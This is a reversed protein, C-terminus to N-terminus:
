ETLIFTSGTRVECYQDPYERRVYDKARRGSCHAPCVYRSMEALNDLTRKSPSHYGGIVMYLDKGSVEKAKSALKDAGPHSCGVVVILGRGNVYFAFAQEQIGWISGVPGTLWANEAVEKAEYVPIPNLGWNRLYDIKDPPVYVKLGPKVKGVYEFGGYHDGHYHSLISFDLDELQINLAEVNHKLAGPDTDADFLVKWKDTEIYASWGWESRLGEGPENDVLVVLRSM